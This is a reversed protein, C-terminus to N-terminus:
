VLGDNRVARQIIRGCIGNNCAVGTVMAVARMATAKARMATAQGGSEDADDDSKGSNCDSEKYGAVMTAM